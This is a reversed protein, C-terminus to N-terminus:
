NVLKQSHVNNPAPIGSMLSYFSCTESVNPCNAVTRPFLLLLYIIIFLLLLLYIIFLYMMMILIKGLNQSFIHIFLAM